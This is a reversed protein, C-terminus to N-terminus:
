AARSLPADARRGTLALLRTQSGGNPPVPLPRDFLGTNPLRDAYGSLERLAFAVMPDPLHEDGGIAHALDWSHVVTDMVLQSCLHGARVPGEWLRVTHDLARGARVADEAAAAAEDWARPPDGGLLDGDLRDSVEAAPTGALLPPLWLQQQVVHDVLDRVTWLRCPTPLRWQDAGVLHVLRGFHELAASYHRPLPATNQRLTVM